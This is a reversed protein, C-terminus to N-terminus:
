AATAMGTEPDRTTEGSAPNSDNAGQNDAGNQEPTQGPNKVSADKAMNLARVASIVWSWDILNSRILRVAADEDLDPDKRMLYKVPSDLGMRVDADLLSREEAADAPAAIERYDTRFGDIPYGLLTVVAREHRVARRRQELRLETLKSRRLQFAKGSAADSGESMTYQEYSMGYTQAISTIVHRIVLLYHDPDTKMGLMEATVEPPLVIPTEGDLKQGKAMHALPGSLVPQNEGQAKCLRMVMINLLVVALHASIIDRGARDDLIRDTPKRRHFLVGPIGGLGHASEALYRGDADLDYVMEADWLEYHKLHRRAESGPKLTTTPACDLLYGAPRLKDRPDPIADFCDPTVVRLDNGDPGAFSWVLVENCLFTLRHAEQHIEHLEVRDEDLRFRAQTAADTFLRLAPQDYLSAVEDVIRRTVNHETAVPILRYRQERISQTEFAWDIVNRADQEYDDRYLRLRLAVAQRRARHPNGLDQALYTERVWAILGDRSINYLKVLSM